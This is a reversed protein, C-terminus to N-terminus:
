GRVEVTQGREVLRSVPADTQALAPAACLSGALAVVARLTTTM